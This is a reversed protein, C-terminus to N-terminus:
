VGVMMRAASKKYGLGMKFGADVSRPDVFTGFVRDWITFTTGLNMDRNKTISHHIRHYAPNIILWDLPGLSVDVNSHAWFQVFVGTSFGIGAEVVSLKFVFFPVVIQPIAYYFVHLVSTRLGSFWYLQEISHHWEHARWLFDFRHMSRHLWYLTFDMLVMVVPVKIWGPLARVSDLALRSDAALANCLAFLGFRSANIAAVAVLIAVVDMRLASRRDLANAPRVRECVEFLIAFVILATVEYDEYKSYLEHM